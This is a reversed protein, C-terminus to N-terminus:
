SLVLCSSLLSHAALSSELADLAGFELGVVRSAWGPGVGWGHWRALLMLSARAEALEPISYKNNKCSRFALPHKNGSSEKWLWNKELKM